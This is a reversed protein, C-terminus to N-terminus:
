FVFVTSEDAVVSGTTLVAVSFVVTTSLLVVVSGTVSPAVVLSVDASFEFVEDVTEYLSPNNSLTNSKM